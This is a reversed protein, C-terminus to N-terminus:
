GVGRALIEPTLLPGTTTPPVHVGKETGGRNTCSHHGVGGREKEEEVVFRWKRLCRRVLPARPVRHVPGLETWSAGVFSESVRVQRRGQPIRVTIPPERHSGKPLSYVKECGPFELRCEPLTESPSYM